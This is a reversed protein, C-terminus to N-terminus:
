GEVEKTVKCTHKEAGTHFVIHFHAPNITNVNCLCSLEHFSILTICGPPIWSLLSKKWGKLTSMWFLYFFFVQAKLYATMTVLLLTRKIKLNWWKIYATHLVCLPHREKKNVWDYITSDIIWHADTHHDITHLVRSSISCTINAWSRAKKEKSNWTSQYFSSRHMIATKWREEKLANEKNTTLTQLVVVTPGVDLIWNM